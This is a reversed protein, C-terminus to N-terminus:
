VGGDDGALLMSLVFMGAFLAVLLRTFSFNVAVLLGSPADEPGDRGAQKYHLITILAMGM